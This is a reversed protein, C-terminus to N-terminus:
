YGSEFDVTNLMKEGNLCRRYNEMIKATFAVTPSLAAVHPTIRVGPHAWLRSSEPLPEQSFVDLICHKVHGEDLAWLLDEEKALDGRGANMFTSGKPLVSLVERSVIGKTDKTLPLLCVLFNCGRVFDLLQDQGHFSDVGEMSKLSKSWGRVSYGAGRIKKAVATGLAGLGMIGVSFDDSRAYEHDVNGVWRRDMQAKYYFDMDRHSNLVGWLVWDAMREGMVPEVLRAVPVNRPFDRDSFVSDAGAATLQIGKLNSFRKLTGHPHQFLVAFQTTSPDEIEDLTAVNMGADSLSKAVLPESGDTVCVLVKPECSSMRRLHARASPLLSTIAQKTRGVAFCTLFEM